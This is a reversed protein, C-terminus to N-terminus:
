AMRVLALTVAPEGVSLRDGARLKARGTVREDNVYTGYRSFDVVYAGGADTGLACHSRSVACHHADLALVHEGRPTRGLVLPEEKLAIVRSGHVLHTPTADLDVAPLAARVPTFARQPRRKVSRALSPQLANFSLDTAAVQFNAAALGAEALWVGCDVFEDLLPGIGPLQRATHSLLIAGSQGAKRLGHMAAALASYADAADAAADATSYTMEYSQGSSEISISDSAQGAGITKLWRGLAVFLAQETAASHLPDFRSHQVMRSAFGRLWQERLDRWGLEPLVAVRRRECRDLRSDVETVVGCELEIDIHLITGEFPVASVACTARDVLGAVRFGAAGAVSLLLGLQELQWSASVMLACREADLSARWRRMQEYALDPAERGFAWPNVGVRAELVECLMEHEADRAIIEADNLEIALVSGRM